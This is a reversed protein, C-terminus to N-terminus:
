GISFPQGYLTAKVYNDGIIEVATYSRVQAFGGCNQIEMQVDQYDYSYRGPATIDKGGVQVWKVEGAAIPLTISGGVSASSLDLSGTLGGRLGEIDVQCGVIYGTALRSAGHTSSNSTGNPQPDTNNQPGNFPGVEGAPTATVDAWANGAVWVTRGAGNAALSPSVVASSGIHGMAYGPGNKFVDPLPVFTDANAAGTSLLGITVAAAAGLGAIQAGRRLGTTRNESM